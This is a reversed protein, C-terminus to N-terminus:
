FKIMSSFFYFESEPRWNKKELEKWPKKGSYPLWRSFIVTAMVDTLYDTVIFLMGMVSPCLASAYYTHSGTIESWLGKSNLKGSTCGFLFTVPKINLHMLYYDKVHQLGSGHGCYVFVDINKWIDFLKEKSVQEGINKTWSPLWSDIFETMRIEMDPLNNEPNIITHGKRIKVYWYGNKIDRSHKRYLSMLIPFSSIRSIEQDVNLMEWLLLDLTEDIILLCPYSERPERVIFNKKINYLLGFMNKFDTEDTAFQCCFDYIAEKSMLDARRGIMSLLIRLEITCKQQKCYQDIKAYVKTEMGKDLTDKFAGSLVFMWTRFWIKQDEVVKQLNEEFKHIDDWYKQRYDRTDKSRDYKMVEKMSDYMDLLNQLMENGNNPAVSILLPKKDNLEWRPYKFLTIFLGTDKSLIEKSQGGTVLADFRKSIQVVTWEPPLIKSDAHLETYIQSNLYSNKTQKTM